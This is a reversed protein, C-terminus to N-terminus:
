SIKFIAKTVAAPDLVKEFNLLHESHEEVYQRAKMVEYASPWKAMGKGNGGLLQHLESNSIHGVGHAESVAVTTM